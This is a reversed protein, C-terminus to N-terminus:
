NLWLKYNLSNCIQSILRSKRPEGSSKQNKEEKKLEKKEDVLMKNIKKNM